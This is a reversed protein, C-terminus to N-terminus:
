ESDPPTSNDVEDTDPFMYSSFLGFIICKIATVEAGRPFREAVSEIYDGVQNAFSSALELAVDLPVNPDEGYPDCIKQWLGTWEDFKETGWAEIDPELGDLDVGKRHNLM